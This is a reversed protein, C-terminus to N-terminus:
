IESIIGIITMNTAMLLAECHSERFVLLLVTLSSLNPEENFPWKKERVELYSICLFQYTTFLKMVLPFFFDQKNTKKLHKHKELSMEVKDKKLFTM